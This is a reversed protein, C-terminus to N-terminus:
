IINAEEIDDLDIFIMSVLILVMLVVSLFSGFNWNNNRLFEQEIVNGILNVKGGSLLRPIVFSSMAPVFVMICGSYLGGLSLPFLVKRISYFEGAGLDRAAEIVSKDIKILVTYIPLIMFPLFNYVMGLLVAGENYMLKYPGMGVYSLLHNIIGNNELLTLWSYTRLLMNIWMPLIILMLFVIRHKLDGKALFYAAPYAIVACLVTTQFAVVLSKFLVRLFLPTFFENLNVFSFEYGSETKVTFAFFIVLLLPAVIFLVMWLLYPASLKQLKMEM